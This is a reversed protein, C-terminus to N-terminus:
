SLGGEPLEEARLRVAAQLLPPFPVGARGLGSVGTDGPEGTLPQTTHASGLPSVEPDRAPLGPRRQGWSTKRM